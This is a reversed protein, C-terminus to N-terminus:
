LWPLVEGGGSGLDRHGAESSPQPSYTAGGTGHSLKQGCAIQVAQGAQSRTVM